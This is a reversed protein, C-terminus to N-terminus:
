TTSEPPSPPLPAVADPHLTTLRVDCDLETGIAPPDVSAPLLLLSVHMHPPEAFWRQKGAWRFPSLALNAAALTGVALAKGRGVPGRVTRPAELAVGHATGGLAVTHAQEM